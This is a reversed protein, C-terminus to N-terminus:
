GDPPRLMASTVVRWCIWSRQSVISPTGSVTARSALERVQWALEVHRERSAGVVARFGGVGQCRQEVGSEALRDLFNAAEAGLGSSGSRRSLRAVQVPVRFGAIAPLGWGGCMSVDNPSRWFKKPVVM